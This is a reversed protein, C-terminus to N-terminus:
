TFFFECSSDSSDRKNRLNFITIRALAAINRNRVSFPSRTLKLGGELNVNLGLCYCNHLPQSLTNRHSGKYQPVLILM